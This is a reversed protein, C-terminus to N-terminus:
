FDVDEDYSTSPLHEPDKPGTARPWEPNEIDPNLDSQANFIELQEPTKALESRLEELAECVQYYPKNLEVSLWYIRFQGRDIFSIQPAYESADSGYFASSNPIFVGYKLSEIVELVARYPLAYHKKGNISLLCYRSDEDPAQIFDEEFKQVLM